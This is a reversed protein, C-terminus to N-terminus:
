YGLEQGYDDPVKVDGDLIDEEKSVETLVAHFDQDGPPPNDAEVADLETHLTNLDAIKREVGEVLGDTAEMFGSEIGAFEKEDEALMERIEQSVREPLDPKGNFMPVDNSLTSMM